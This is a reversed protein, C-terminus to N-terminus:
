PLMRFYGATANGSPLEPSDSAFTATFQGTIAHENILSVFVFCDQTTMTGEPLTLRISVGSDSCQQGGVGFNIGEIHWRRDPVFSSPNEPDTDYATIVGSEYETRGEFTLEQEAFQATIGSRDGLPAADGQLNPAGFGGGGTEIFQPQTLHVDPRGCATALPLVFLLVRTM